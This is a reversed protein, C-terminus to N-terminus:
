EAKERRTVAEEQLPRLHVGYVVQDHVVEEGVVAGEVVVQEGDAVAIDVELGLIEDHFEHM